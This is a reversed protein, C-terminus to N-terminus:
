PAAAVRLEPRRGKSALKAVDLVLAVRGNGLVAAGLILDSIRLSRHLSKLMIQEHSIVEDVLLAVIGAPSSALVAVGGRLDDTGFGFLEGPRLLPVPGEAFRLVEEGDPLRARQGVAPRVIQRVDDVPVVIQERGCRLVLGDLVALTMPVNLSVCCGQGRAGDVHLEGGLEIVNRRVVDLGVGRGSLEGVEASTTFGPLFLTQILAAETVPEDLAVVGRRIAVERVRDLDLGRGDDEVVLVVEGQGQRASLLIRGTPSKGAASREARTEIGHDLANRVLHKLPDFLREAVSKDLETQAGRIEVTVDKGLRISQDRVYRQLLAFTSTMPVLRMAMAAEQIRSSLRRLDSCAAMMRGDTAIVGEARLLEIQSTAISLEAALNVLADIRRVGVVITELGRRRGEGDPEPEPELHPASELGAPPTVPREEGQVEDLHLEIRDEVFLFTSRLDDITASTELVLEFCLYMAEPDLDDLGPLRSDDTRSSVVAGFDALAYLLALPDLATIQADEALRLQVRVRRVRRTMLVEPTSPAAAEGEGEQVQERLRDVGQLLRTVAAREVARHGSRMEDLETELHHATESAARLGMMATASKLNHAARFVEDLLEQEPHEDLVLLSTELTGLLTLLEERFSEALTSTV